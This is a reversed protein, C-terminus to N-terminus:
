FLLLYFFLWLFYFLLNFYYCVSSSLGTIQLLTSWLNWYSGSWIEAAPLVGEFGSANEGNRRHESPGKLRRHADLYGDSLFIKEGLCSDRPGWQYDGKEPQSTWGYQREVLLFWNGTSNSFLVWKCFFRHIRGWHPSGKELFLLSFIQLYLFDASSMETGGAVYGSMTWMVFILTRCSSNRQLACVMVARLQSTVESLARAAHPCQAQKAGLKPFM